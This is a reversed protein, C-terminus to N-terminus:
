NTWQGQYPDYNCKSPKSMIGDVTYARCDSCVYRYECDQCVSIQDKNITWLSQFDKNEAIEILSTQNTNGYSTEMSPCNKIEGNIDISIKRNLCNNHTINEMFLHVEAPLTMVAQNIIGCSNCSTIEQKIYHVYGLTNLIINLDSEYIKNFPSSYITFSIMPFSVTLSQYQALTISDQYKLLLQISNLDRSSFKLILETIFSIDPAYYIRIQLFKCNLKDLEASLKDVDYNSQEDIDIIANNIPNPSDYELKLPPFNSIDDVIEAFDNDIFSEIFLCLQSASAGSVLNIVDNIKRSKFEIVIDYYDNEIFFWKNKNLDCVMTRTYGKVFFIDAYIYLYKGAFEKLYQSTQIM